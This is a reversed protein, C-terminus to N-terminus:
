ESKSESRTTSQHAGGQETRGIKSIRDATLLFIQSVIGLPFVVVFGLGTFVISYWLAGFLGGNPASRLALAAFGAALAVVFSGIWPLIAAPLLMKWGRCALIWRKFVLAITVSIVPFLAWVAESPLSFSEEIGGRMAMSLGPAFWLGALWLFSLAFATVVYLM